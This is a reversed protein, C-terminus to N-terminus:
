FFQNAQPHDDMAIQLRGVKAQGRVSTELNKIGGRGAKHQSSFWSTGLYAIRPCSGM